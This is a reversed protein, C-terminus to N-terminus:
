DIRLHGAIAVAVSDAAHANKVPVGTLREVFKKVVAKDVGGHGCVSAKVQQPTFMSVDLSGEAAALEIIGITLGDVHGRIRGRVTWSHLQQYVWPVVRNKM